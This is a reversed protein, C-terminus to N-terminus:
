RVEPSTLPLVLSQLAPLSALVGALVSDQQLYRNPATFSRLQPM